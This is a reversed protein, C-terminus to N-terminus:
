REELNVSLQEVDESDVLIINSDTQTELNGGCDECLVLDGTFTVSETMTKEDGDKYTLVDESLDVGNIKVGDQVQVHGAVHANEPNLIVDTSSANRM